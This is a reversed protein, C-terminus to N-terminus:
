LTLRIKINDFDKVLVSGDDSNSILLGEEKCTKELQSIYNKDPIAISYSILGLSNEAPSTSGRSQWVNAGIHHHYGDAALFLAGPYSNSTVSFGLIRNYFMDAFTLNSVKLHIHGIDAEPHIGNWTDKDNLEKTITSLDLPLTDMEIEGNTWKWESRPKDAYLEIGNGDPDALYIAESVLHDSFGQFKHKHEFLRLFVRALEKRDPFRIAVHYLGTKSKDSFVATKDEILKILYSNAQDSHLEVEREKISSEKMGLLYSYFHLSRELDKVKLDVNKIHTNAPIQM